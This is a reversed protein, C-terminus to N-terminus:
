KRVKVLSWFGSKRWHKQSLAARYAHHADISSAADGHAALADLKELYRAAHGYAPSRARNLIDDLLTRYLITAAVPHDAELTEAAALLTEYHRGEWEARRDVVVKAALDLRPWNLFFELARYKQEFDIARAFAKDLVDFEAFDPLRAIHDRLMGIDLTTEFTKWRVDQATTRDGMAELIRIELRTRALDPVDRPSSGDALNDYTMVKLGPRGRKRVWELAESHRGADCLREAIAMTNHHGDPRSKELAIFAEVDQRCDAIAQRLCIIRDAKARKKWNRDWDKIPGLSREAEVLREDWHDVAHAPLHAVLEPMITSFFGYDDSVTLAFLRDPISAKDAQELRGVLDPLAAAAEHYVNQLRGSSDDIREFVRDATSLFRVLRDVAADPDASALEGTITALTAAIGATFAKAKEWDVFAKARDLGALRKDIIAGVAAPGKTAALAAAVLKRFAANRKAEGIVLRALKESGLKVLAEENLAPQRAM